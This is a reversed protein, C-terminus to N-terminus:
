LVWPTATKLNDLFVNSITETQDLQRWLINDELHFRHCLEAQLFLLPVSGSCDARVIAELIRGRATHEEPLSPLLSHFLRLAAAKQPAAGHFLWHFAFDM